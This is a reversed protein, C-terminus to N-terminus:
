KSEPAILVTAGSSWSTIDSTLKPTLTCSLPCGLSEAGVVAVTTMVMVSILSTGGRKRICSYLAVSSM